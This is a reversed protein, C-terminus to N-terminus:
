SHGGIGEQVLISGLAGVSIFAIVELYTPTILSM